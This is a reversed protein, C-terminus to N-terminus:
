VGGFGYTHLLRITEARSLTGTPAATADHTIRIGTNVMVNWALIVRELDDSRVRSRNKCM